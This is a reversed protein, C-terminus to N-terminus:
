KPTTWKKRRVYLMGITCITLVGLLIVVISVWKPYTITYSAEENIKKAQEEGITFEENWSWSHEGSTAKVSLIYTGPQIPDLGWNTAFDFQSNPAMRLDNTTRKRLVEKSGKQRLKTEVTLNDLIKPEPNQLRAQIVRKGQHVTPKVQLLNLSSGDSYDVEDEETIVLGLRYGYNSSLGKQQEGTDEANMVVIAAVKVGKFSEKPPNVTITVEKEEKNKVSVTAESISTIEEMSNKLSEDRQYEAGDYDIEGNQNTFADRVKIAVKREEESTSKIKLTLQQEQGPIVKVFFFGKSEDVQTDTKVAEVTFGVEVGKNQEKSPEPVQKKGIQLEQSTETEDGYVTEASFLPPLILSLLLCNIIFLKKVKCKSLRNM